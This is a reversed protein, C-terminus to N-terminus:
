KIMLRLWRYPISDVQLDKKIFYSICSNKEPNHVTITHGGEDTTTFTVINGTTTMLKTKYGCHGPKILGKARRFAKVPVPEGSDTRPALDGDVLREIAYADSVIRAIPPKSSFYPSIQVQV